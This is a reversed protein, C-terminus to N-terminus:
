REKNARNWSSPKNFLFEYIESTKKGIFIWHTKRIKYVKERKWTWMFVIKKLKERNWDYIEEFFYV